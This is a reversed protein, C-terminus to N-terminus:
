TRAAWGQRPARPPTPTANFTVTYPTVAITATVATISGTGSASTPLTYDSALTGAGATFDGATLSATVTTASAVNPSNYMGATQTVTFSDGGVLGSISFNNPALTATTTGDYSKTPDNTISATLTAPTITGRATETTVSYDAGGAGDNITDSVALTSGDTGLVDKSTFAQALTTFTDGDYLTNPGLGVVQYTPTQSSSTTGDYVKTDTVADISLAAPTITVSGTAGTLTYDGASTGGLTLDAFSSISQSGVDQGALTASGSLSVDDGGVENSVSLISSTAANTGDYVRSGTLDVALPNVTQSLNGSPNGSTSGTATYVANIEHVGASLTSITFTSTASDATVALASGPGLPTAGDYFEVTGTPASASTVTAMFTLATSYVAPNTGTMLSVSTTTSPGDYTLVVNKGGGNAYSITFEDGDANFTDGSALGSFTGSVGQTTSVIVYRAGITASAAFNSGLSLDLTSNGLSATGTINLEDYGTGATTGDLLVAFTSGSSLTATASNLIGTAGAVGPEVVGGSSATIAGATGTGGLTGGSNVTVSSASLTGTVVLTGGSVTTVGKYTDTNSLSLMGTGTKTLSNVPVGFASNPIDVFNTGGTPDWQVDLSAGGGGQYYEVDIAHLGPTLDVLGTAQTAGQFNNNDVVANGDIYLMSGDDSTTAFNIPVPATGTGPIMIDGYWRAEVNDNIGPGLDYYAPDGVSDAFGNDAIDPFDIPGVLQATVAPTQNGLWNPNSPDAPQILDQAAPLNYYTGTLGPAFGSTATGSIVGTINDQGSGSDTLNGTSGLNINGAINITGSDALTVTAGQSNINGNITTTGAGLVTLANGAASIDGGLTLTGADSGITAEGSLTIPFAITNADSINEIAGNGAPGSGRITIPEASTYDLGGTFALAGGTNVVIGTATAPGMAGNATVVLTGASVTTSGLYSNTSSLTLTGTGMKILGNASVIASFASNPIDVFNTGGTPDWQADMTAGGGGQYYEVDIAHLGPTLDVLGTAQTAGQFNNNDVVANGDIYLMSGDDSTTAFNIPVPATGTGPVMINGYWRAEVNDNIGPGLDYYAPDGVSDAFGNDAIDPFDIPGVLQATVASTQNGLWNPNSPDAPQILGQAATLNFYTGILGQDVAIGSTATGSIVGAITDQGSSLDTLNATTGLNINGAIDITGTGALTVGGSGQCVLNGTITTTGSGSISKKKKHAPGPEFDGSRNGRYTAASRQTLWQTAM